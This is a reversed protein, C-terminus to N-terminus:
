ETEHDSDTPAGMLTRWDHEFQRLAVEARNKGEPTLEQYRVLTRLHFELSGIIGAMKQSRLATREYLQFLLNDSDIKDQTTPKTELIM